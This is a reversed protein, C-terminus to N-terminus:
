AGEPHSRGAVRSFSSLLFSIEAAPSWLQPNSCLDVPLDLAEPEARDEGCREPVGADVCIGRNIECKMKCESM